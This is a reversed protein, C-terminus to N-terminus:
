NKEEKVLAMGCTPCKGPASTKVHGMPCVWAEQVSDAMPTASGSKGHSGDGHGMGCGMMAGCGAVMLCSCMALIRTGLKRM